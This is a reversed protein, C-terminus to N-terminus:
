FFSFVSQSRHDVEPHGVLHAPRGHGARLQSFLVSQREFKHFTNQLFEPIRAENLRMAPFEAAVRQGLGGVLDPDALNHAEHVATQCRDAAGTFIGVLGACAGILLVTTQAHDHDIDAVGDGVDEVAVGDGL